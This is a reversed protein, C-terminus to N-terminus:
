IKDIVLQNRVIRIIMKFCNIVILQAVNYVACENVVGVKGASSNQCFQPFHSKVRAQERKKKLGVIVRKGPRTKNLYTRARINV